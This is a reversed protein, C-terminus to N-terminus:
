NWNWNFMNLGFEHLDITVLQNNKLNLYKLDDLGRFSEKFLKKIKNNSINLTELQNMGDNNLKLTQLNNLGILTGKDFFKIKNKNLWINKYLNIVAIESWDLKECKNM